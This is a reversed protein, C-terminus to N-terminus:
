HKIVSEMWSKKKQFIFRLRTGAHHVFLQKLQVTCFFLVAKFYCHSDLLLLISCVLVFYIFCYWRWCKRKLFNTKRVSFSHFGPPIKSLCFENYSQKITVNKNRENKKYDQLFPTCVTYPNVMLEQLKYWSLRFGKFLQAKQQWYSDNTSFNWSNYVNVKIFATALQAKHKQM